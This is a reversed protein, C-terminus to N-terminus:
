PRLYPLPCSPGAISHNGTDEPGVQCSGNRYFGTMPEKSFLGLPKKFVVDAHTKGDGPHFTSVMSILTLKELWERPTFYHLTSRFRNSSVNSVNQILSIKRQLNTIASAFSRITVDLSRSSGAKSRCSGWDLNAFSSVETCWTGSSIIPM